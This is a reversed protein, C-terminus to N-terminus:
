FPIDDLNIQEGSIDDIHVNEKTGTAQAMAPSGKWEPASQIKKKMNDSLSEYVKMDPNDIDFLTNQNVPTPKEGKYSMITQVNAYKGSEDHVVQVIGYVGLVNSLDFGELEQATFKKGRWSELLPRLNGQDSLSVTYTGHVSFPKGDEMTPDDNGILEWSLMVKHKEKTGYSNTITQTGLDVIRYCRGTYQGEPTLEFDANGKEAATLGM